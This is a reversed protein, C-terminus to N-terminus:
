SSVWFRHAYSFSCQHGKIVGISHPTVLTSALSNGLRSSWHHALQPFIPTPVLIITSFLCSLEDVDVDVYLIPLYPCVLGRTANNEWEKLTEETYRSVSVRSQACVVCLFSFKVWRSIGYREPAMDGFYGDSRVLVTPSEWIRSRGELSYDFYDGKRYDAIDHNQHM